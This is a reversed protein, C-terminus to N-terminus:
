NGGAPAPAAPAAQQLTRVHLVAKWRDSVSVQAGLAPMQGRGYTILHFIRGDQMQRTFSRLLTPPKRFGRETVPGDGVGGTGHCAACHRDFVVAGREVAAKDDLSFPNMLENGARIGEAPAPGFGLPAMGRAITGAVPSRATKGDSFNPNADYAGFAPTRAMNPFYEVNPSQSPRRSYWNLAITLLLVVLLVGNIVATASASLAPQPKAAVFEDTENVSLPRYPAM